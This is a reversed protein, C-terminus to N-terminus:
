GEAARANRVPSGAPRQTQKKAHRKERKTITSKLAILAFITEKLEPPKRHITTRAMHEADSLLELNELACNMHNGDKWWIRHGKPIPGHAAEWVRKHVFEWAKDCAGIGQSEASVKIRLYGDGNPKITGIPLYTHPRNGKKFQTERMRGRFYGPRRLGKNAPVVGKQFRGAISRPHSSIARGCAELCQRLYEPSKKLGIKRARAYISQVDTGFIAALKRSPTNPYEKRLRANEATTWLHYKRIRRIKLLKARSSVAKHTRGMIRACERAPHLPYLKRLLREDRATWSNARIVVRPRACSRQSAPGPLGPIKQLGPLPVRSHDVDAPFGLRFLEVTAMEANCHPCHPPQIEPASM